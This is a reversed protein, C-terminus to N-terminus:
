LVAGSLVGLTFEFHDPDVIAFGVPDNYMWEAGITLVETANSGKYIKGAYVRKFDDKFAVEDDGYDSIGTLDKLKKPKEEGARLKLWAKTTQAIEINSYELQHIMEHVHVGTSASKTMMASKSKNVYESRTKATMKVDVSVSHVEGLVQSLFKQATESRSKIAKDKTRIKASVSGKKPGVASFIIEHMEDRISEKEKELQVGKAELERKKKWWQEKQQETMKVGKSSLQHSEIENELLIQEKVIGVSRAGKKKVEDRVKKLSPKAEAYREKFQKPDQIKFGLEADMKDQLKVPRLKKRSLGQNSPAPKPTPKPPKPKKTRKPRPKQKYTFGFRSVQSLMEQRKEMAGRVRKLRAERGQATEARLTRITMIKGNGDIFDTFQPDRVGGLQRKMSDYRRVGVAQKRRGEDASDFWQSYVHPDPIPQNAANRFEAQLEPNNKLESPETLVPQDYCRCNPEDPLVPLESISPKKRGDSWYITGNRHAHHPRTNQDLTAIIQSGALLDGLQSYQERQVMTAIRLGETRAIRKASSSISGVIPAVQATLESLKLGQSAGATLTGALRDFDTIKHSLSGMREQWNQGAVDAYVVREIDEISPQPFVHEKVFDAWEDDSMRDVVPEPFEAFANSPPLLMANEGVMVTIPNVARFWRRPIHKTLAKVSDVYSWYAMRKFQKDMIAASKEVMGRFADAAERQHSGFQDDDSILRLALRAQRRVIRDCKDAIGEARLTAEHQKIEFAAQLRSQVPM